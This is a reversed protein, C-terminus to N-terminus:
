VARLWDIVQSELSRPPGWGLDVKAPVHVHGGRTLWKLELDGAEAAWTRISAAPVMPDDRVAVLLAPTRLRHLRPGVSAREYYDAVSAFGFRPVVSAADFGRLTTTTRVAEPDGPFTPHRAVIVEYAARLKRLVVKRYIAASPADIGAQARALDLPACIAAVRALRPTDIDGTAARLVIHGGLSYGLLFIREFPALAPHDVVVQLDSGLGAHYLDAGDGDAGRQSMRLSAMGVASAARAARALYASSASGGLGHVLVVVDRAGPPVHLTGRLPVVGVESM